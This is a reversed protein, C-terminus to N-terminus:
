KNKETLTWRTSLIMTTVHTRYSVTGGVRHHELFCRSLPKILTLVMCSILISGEPLIWKLKKRSLCYTHICCHRWMELNISFLFLFLYFEDM